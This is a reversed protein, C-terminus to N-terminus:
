RMHYDQSHDAQDLEGALRFTVALDLDRQM